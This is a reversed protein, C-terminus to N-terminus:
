GRVARSFRGCDRDIDINTFLSLYSTLSHLFFILLVSFHHIFALNSYFRSILHPLLFEFAIFLSIPMQHFLCLCAIRAQIPIRAQEPLQSLSHSSSRPRYM